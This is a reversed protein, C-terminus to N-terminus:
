AVGGSEIPVVSTVGRLVTRSGCKPCTEPADEGWWGGGGCLTRDGEKKGTCIMTRWVVSNLMLVVEPLPLV